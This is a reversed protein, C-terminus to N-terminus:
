HMYNRIDTLEEKWLLEAEQYEGSEASMSLLVSKRISIWRFGIDAIRRATRSETYCM